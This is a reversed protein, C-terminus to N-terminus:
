RSATWFVGEQMQMTAEALKAEFVEDILELSSMTFDGTALAYQATLSLVYQELITPPKGEEDTIDQARDMARGRITDLWDDIALSKETDVNEPRCTGQRIRSPM